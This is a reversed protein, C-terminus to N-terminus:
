ILRPSLSDLRHVWSYGGARGLHRSQEQSCALTASSLPQSVDVPRTRRDEQNTTAKESAHDFIRVNRGVGVPWRSVEEGSM